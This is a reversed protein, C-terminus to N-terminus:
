NVPVLLWAGTATGSTDPFGPEFLELSACAWFGGSTGNANRTGHLVEIERWFPKAGTQDGFARLEASGDDNVTFSALGAVFASFEWRQEGSYVNRFVEGYAFAEFGGTEDDVVDVFDLYFNCEARDITPLELPAGAMGGAGIESSQGGMSGGEGASSGGSEGSAGGEGTAFSGQAIGALRYGIMPGPSAGAEGGEGDSGATGADGSGAGAAGSNREGGAGAEHGAEGALGADTGGAGGDDGGRPTLPDSGCGALSLVVTAHVLFRQM